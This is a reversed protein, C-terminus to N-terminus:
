KGENKLIIELETLTIEKDRASNYGIFWDGDIADYTIFQNRLSREDFQITTDLDIKEGYKELLQGAEELHAGNEIFVCINEKTLIM